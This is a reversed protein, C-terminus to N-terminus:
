YTEFGLFIREVDESAVSAYRFQSIDTTPLDPVNTETNFYSVFTDWAVPEIKIFIILAELFICKSGLKTLNTQILSYNAKILILHEEM